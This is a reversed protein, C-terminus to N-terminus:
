LTALIATLQESYTKIEDETLELKALEAINRVDDHSIQM